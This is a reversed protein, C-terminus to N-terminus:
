VFWSKALQTLYKDQESKIAQRVALVMDPSFVQEFFGNILVAAESTSTFVRMVTPFQAQLLETTENKRAVVFVGNVLAERLAMGYSEFPACSLLVHIKPWQERIDSQTLSGTFEPKPEFGGLQSELWAREPGDGILLVKSEPRAVKLDKFIAPCEKIGRESHLRGVMGVINSLKRDLAANPIEIPVPAVFIQGKYNTIEKKLNELDSKSVVRISDIFKINLLLFKLKLKEAISTPNLLASISAHISIQLRVNADRCTALRCMLLSLHNDGSILTTNGKLAKLLRKLAIYQTPIFLPLAKIKINNMSDVKNMPRVGGILIRICASNLELSEEAKQAYRQFRFMLDNQNTAVRSINTSFFVVNRM